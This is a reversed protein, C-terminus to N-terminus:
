RVVQHDAGKAAFRETAVPFLRVCRLDPGVPESRYLEDERRDICRPLRTRQVQGAQTVVGQLPVLDPAEGDIHGTAPPDGEDGVILVCDLDVQLIVMATLMEFRCGLMSGEEGPTSRASITIGAVPLLRDSIARRSPM